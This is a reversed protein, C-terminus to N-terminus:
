CVDQRIFWIQYEDVVEGPDHKDVNRSLIRESTVPGESLLATYVEM